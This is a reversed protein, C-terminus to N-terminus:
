IGDLGARLGRKRRSQWVLFLVLLEDGMWSAGEFGGVSLWTVM